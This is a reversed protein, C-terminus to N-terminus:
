SQDTVILNMPIDHPQPYITPLKGEAYGLGVCFPRRAMSAITRDYYGGGYGLRYREEDFGVLPVILADPTVVERKVPIPINWVGRKMGMGPRWLWFEVPAAKEVVVPLGVTGGAEIHQRAIDRVDIEGRMSWYLGLTPYKRLDVAALLKQKAEAGKAQLKSVGLALRGSILAERTQKRWPRIENWTKMEGTREDLEHMFCAPSSYSRPDEM